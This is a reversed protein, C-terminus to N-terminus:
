APMLWSSGPTRARLLPACPGSPTSAAGAGPTPDPNLGTTTTCTPVGMVLNTAAIEDNVGPFSTANTLPGSLQATLTWTIPIGRADTVTLDNFSGTTQQDTGDLDVAPTMSFTCNGPDTPPQFNDGGSFDDLGCADLDLFGANVVQFVGQSGADGGVVDLNITYTTTSVGDGVEVVFSDPGVYGSTAAYSFVATSSPGSAGASGLVVNGNTANTNLAWTTGDVGTADGDTATVNINAPAANSVTQTGVPATFVPGPDELLTSGIVTPDPTGALQTCNGGGGPGGFNNNLSGAGLIGGTAGGAM